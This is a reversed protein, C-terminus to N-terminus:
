QLAIYQLILSGMKHASEICEQKEFSQLAHRHSVPRIGQAVNHLITHNYESKVTYSELLLKSLSINGYILKM